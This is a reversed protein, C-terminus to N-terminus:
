NMFDISIPRSNKKAQIEARQRELELRVKEKATKTREVEEKTLRELQTKKLKGELIALEAALEQERDQMEELRDERAQQRQIKARDRADIAANSERLQELQQAAGPGMGQYAMERREQYNNACGALLTASLAVVALLSTKASTM